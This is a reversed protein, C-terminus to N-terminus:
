IICIFTPINYIYIRKHIHTYMQINLVSSHPYIHMQIINTHMIYTYINVYVNYIFRM